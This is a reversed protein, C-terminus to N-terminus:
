TINQIEGYDVNKYIRIKWSISQKFFTTLLGFDQNSNCHSSWNEIIEIDGKDRWFNDINKHCFMFAFNDRLSKDNDIVWRCIIHSMIVYKLFSFPQSFHRFFLPQPKTGTYESNNTIITFFHRPESFDNTHYIDRPM